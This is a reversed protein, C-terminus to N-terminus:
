VISYAISWDCRLLIWLWFLCRQTQVLVGNKNCTSTAFLRSHTSASAHGKYLVM